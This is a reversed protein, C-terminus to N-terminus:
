WSTDCPRVRNEPSKGPETHRANVESLTTGCSLQSITLMLSSIGADVVTEKEFAVGRCIKGSEFRM